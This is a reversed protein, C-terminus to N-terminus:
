PEVRCGLKRRLSQFTDRSLNVEKVIDGERDVLDAIGYDNGSDNDWVMCQRLTQCVGVSGKEFTM